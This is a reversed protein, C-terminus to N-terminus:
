QSESKSRSQLALGEIIEMSTHVTAIGELSGIKLILPDTDQRQVYIRFEKQNEYDLPKKFVGVEGCYTDKDYYDMFGDRYSYGKEEVAQQIRRLFEPNDKIMICSDGFGANSIHAKFSEPDPFFYSSVCYLSYINGALNPDYERLRLAEYRGTYNIEPITFEGPPCDIIRSIGEYMDARLPDDKRDRFHKISNMYVTGNEYLDQIYEKPGFRLFFAITYTKGM